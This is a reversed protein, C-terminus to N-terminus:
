ASDAFQCHMCFHQCEASEAYAREGASFLLAWLLGALIRVSRLISTKHLHGVDHIRGDHDVSKGYMLLLM